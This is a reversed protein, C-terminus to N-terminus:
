STNACGRSSQQGRDNWHDGEDLAAFRNQNSPPGANCLFFISDFTQLGSGTHHLAARTLHPYTGARQQGAGPKRFGTGWGGEQGGGGRQQQAEQQQLRGFVGQMIRRDHIRWDPVYFLSVQSVKFIVRICLVFWHWGIGMGPKHKQGSKTSLRRSYVMKSMIYSASILPHNKLMLREGLLNTVQTTM